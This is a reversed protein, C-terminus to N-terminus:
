FAKNIFTKSQESIQPSVGNPMVFEKPAEIIKKMKEIFLTGDTHDLEHQFIRALLGALSLKIKKGYIDNFSIRIHVFREVLGFVHPVSICGEIDESIQSSQWTIKPNIYIKPGEETKVAIIKKPVGIQIAAFGVGDEQEMAHILLKTFDVLNKDFIVVEESIKQLSPHPYTIITYKM